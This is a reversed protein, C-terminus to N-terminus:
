EDDRPQNRYWSRYESIAMQVDGKLTSRWEKFRADIQNAVQGPVSAISMELSRLRGFIEDHERDNRDMRGLRERCNSEITSLKRGFEGDKDQVEKLAGNNQNLRTEHNELDKQAAGYTRGVKFMVGAAMAAAAVISCILSLGVTVWNVDFNM